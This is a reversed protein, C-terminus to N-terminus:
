PLHLCRVFPRPTYCSRGKKKGKNVFTTSYIKQSSRM